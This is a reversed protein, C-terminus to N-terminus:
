QIPGRRDAMVYWGAGQYRGRRRIAKVGVGVTDRLLRGARRATPVTAVGAVHNRGPCTDFGFLHWSEFSSFWTDWTPIAKVSSTSSRGPKKFEYAWVGFISTCRVDTWHVPWSSPTRRPTNGGGAPGCAYRVMTLSKM